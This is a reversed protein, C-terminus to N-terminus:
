RYSSNFWWEAQVGLYHVWPTARRPDDPVYQDLAAANQHAARYVLRLQPRDYSSPGAPSWALIPAIAAVAPDAARQSTPALGRPFRAEFSLDVGAYFRHELHLMPRAALTYEWGDDRDAGDRDADVFRRALVGAALAFRDADWNAGAGLVLESARPFTRLDPGLASPATLEDYAALGRSWRAFLNLHRKFTGPEGHGGGGPHEGDFGYASLELGLTSGWDRPLAEVTADDRRREGSPLAHVEAHVKVAVNAETLDDGLVHYRASISGVTRLRDLQTVTTAGQAPDAVAITQLQFPDTLRSWGVHSAVTLRRAALEVGAGVTNQDDLPWVDLLYIDDGRYMRSGIWGEVRDFTRDAVNPRALLYLNRLASRTQFDGTDHLLDDAFALTIVPSLWHGEGVLTGYALDLELYSPEVIRAGHTVVHVPAPRGGRLDTGALVRGYSGFRLGIWDRAPAVPVEDTALSARDPSPLPRPPETAITIPTTVNPAPETTVPPPSAPADDPATPAPADDAAGEEPSPSETPAPGPQGQAQAPRLAAVVGGALLLAGLPRMPRMPRMPGAPLLM